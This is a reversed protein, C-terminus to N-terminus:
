NKQLKTILSYVSRAQPILELKPTQRVGPWATGEMMSARLDVPGLLITGSGDGKETLSMDFLQRVPHSEVTKSFIGSRIMVRQSTIGYITNKRRTADVFFRGIIMYIGIVVFLIGVLNFDLPAGKTLVAGEWFFAFGGWFLTFPILFIDSSRFVIGQKPRGTWLLKEDGDLHPRLEQEIEPDTIMVPTPSTM